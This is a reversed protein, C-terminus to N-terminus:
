EYINELEQLITSINDEKPLDCIDISRKNIRKIIERAESTNCSFITRLLEFLIKEEYNEFSFVPFFSQFGVKGVLIRHDVQKTRDNELDYLRNIEFVYNEKGELTFSCLRDTGDLLSWEAFIIKGNYKKYTCCISVPKAEKNRKQLDDEGMLGYPMGLGYPNSIDCEITMSVTFKDGNHNHVVDEFSGYDISKGSESYLSISESSNEISQSLVGPFRIFSSKGCSNKGVFVSIPAIQVEGSDVFSKVNQLRLSKLM